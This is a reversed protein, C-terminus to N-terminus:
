NLILIFTSCFVCVSVHLGLNDFFLQLNVFDINTTYMGPKAIVYKWRERAEGIM